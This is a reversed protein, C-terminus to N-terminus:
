KHPIIFVFLYYYLALIGFTLCRSLYLILYFPQFLQVFVANPRLQQKKVFIIEGVIVNVSIEYHIKYAEDVKRELGLRVM